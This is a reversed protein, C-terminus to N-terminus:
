FDDENEEEDDFPITEIELNTMIAFDEIDELFDIDNEDYYWDIKIDGGSSQYDKLIELMNTLSRYTSTNFYTLKFIIHVEPAYQTFSKLWQLIPQFFEFTDDIFAEGTIVCVGTDANFDIGPRAEKDDLFPEIYLNKLTGM